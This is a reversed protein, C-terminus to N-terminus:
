LKKVEIKIRESQVLTAGEIPERKLAEKLRNKDVSTETHTVLFEGPIAAADTIELKPPNKVKKIVYTEGDLSQNDGLCHLLYDNFRSSVSKITEKAILLDKIKSDIFDIRNEIHKHFEVCHDIKLSLAKFILELDKTIEGNSSNLKEDLDALLRLLSTPILESM